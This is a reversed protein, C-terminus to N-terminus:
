YLCATLKSYWDVGVEREAGHCETSRPGAARIVEAWTLGADRILATARCAAARREGDHDSGLLGALLDRDDRGPEHSM